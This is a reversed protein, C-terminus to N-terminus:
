MLSIGTTGASSSKQPSRARAVSQLTVTNHASLYQLIRVQVVFGLLVFNMSSYFGECPPNECILSNNQVRLLDCPLLDDEVGFTITWSQYRGYTSVFLRTPLGDFQHAFVSQTVRQM